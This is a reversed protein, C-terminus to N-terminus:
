WTKYVAKKRDAERHEAKRRFCPITHTLLMLVVDAAVV